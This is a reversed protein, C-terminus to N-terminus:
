ATVFPVDRTRHTWFLDIKQVFEVRHPTTLTDSHDKLLCLYTGNDPDSPIRGKPLQNVLNAVEELCTQLELPTLIQEGIAKKLAIKCSKVLAECLWEPPSRGANHVEM